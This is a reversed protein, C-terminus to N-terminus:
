RCLSSLCTGGVLPELKGLRCWHDKIPKWAGTPWSGESFSLTVLVTPAQSKEIVPSPHSQVSKYPPFYDLCIDGPFCRPASGLHHFHLSSREYNVDAPVHPFILPWTNACCNPLPLFSRPAPVLLRAASIPVLSPPPLQTVIRSTDRSWLKVRVLVRQRKTLFRLCQVSWREPGM